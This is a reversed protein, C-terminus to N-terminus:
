SSEGGRNCCHRNSRLCVLVSTMASRFYVVFLIHTYIYTHMYAHIYIYM